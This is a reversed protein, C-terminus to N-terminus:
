FVLQKGAAEYRIWPIIETELVNSNVEANDKEGISFFNTLVDGENSVVCLVMVNAALKSTM